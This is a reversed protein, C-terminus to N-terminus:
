ELKHTEPPPAYLTTIGHFYHDLTLVVPGTQGPSAELRLQRPYEGILTATATQSTGDVESALSIVTWTNPIVPSGNEELYSQLRPADWDIPVGRIRCTLSKTTVQKPSTPVRSRTSRLHLLHTITVALIALMVAVAVQATGAM